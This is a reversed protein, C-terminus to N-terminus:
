DQYEWLDCKNKYTDRSFGLPCAWARWRAGRKTVEAAQGHKCSPAGDVGFTWLKGNGDEHEGSSPVGSPPAQRGGSRGSNGSRPASRPASRQERRPEPEGWPDAASDDQRSDGGDDAGPEAAGTLDFLPAFVPHAALAEALADLDVPLNAVHVM